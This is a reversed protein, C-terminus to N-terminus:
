CPEIVKSLHQFIIALLRLARRYEPFLAQWEEFHLLVGDLVDAADAPSIIGNDVLKALLGLSVQQGILAAETFDYRRDSM